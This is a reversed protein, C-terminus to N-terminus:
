SKDAPTTSGSAKETSTRSTTVNEDISFGTSTTSPKKAEESTIKTTNKGM